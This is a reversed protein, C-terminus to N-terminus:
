CPLQEPTVRAHSGTAEGLPEPCCFGKESKIIHGFEDGGPEAKGM